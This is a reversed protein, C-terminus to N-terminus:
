MRDTLLHLVVNGLFVPLHPHLVHLHEHVFVAEIEAGGLCLLEEEFLHVLIEESLARLQRGIEDRRLRLASRRSRPRLTSGCNRTRGGCPWNWRRLDSSRRTSFSLRARRVRYL